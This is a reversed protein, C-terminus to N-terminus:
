SCAANNSCKSPLHSSRLPSCWRHIMCNRPTYRSCPEESGTSTISYRWVVRDAQRLPITDYGLLDAVSYQMIHGETQDVQM